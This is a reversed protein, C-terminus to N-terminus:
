RPLPRPAASLAHLPHAHNRPTNSGAEEPIDRKPGSLSCHAAKARDIGRIHIGLSSGQAAKHLIQQALLLTSYIM